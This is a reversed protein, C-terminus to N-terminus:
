QKQCLKQGKFYHNRLTGFAFKDPYNLLYLAHRFEFCRPKDKDDEIVSVEEYKQWRRVADKFLLDPVDKLAPHSKIWRLTDSDFEAEILEEVAFKWVSKNKIKPLTNVAKYFQISKEDSWQFKKSERKGGRRIGLRSSRIQGETKLIGDLLDRMEDIPDGEFDAYKKVVDLSKLSSEVALRYFSLSFLGPLSSRIYKDIENEYKDLISQFINGKEDDALLRDIEQLAANTADYQAIIDKNATLNKVVLNPNYNLKWDLEKTIFEVALNYRNLIFVNDFLLYIIKLALEDFYEFNALIELRIATLRLRVIPECEVFVERLANIQPIRKTLEDIIYDTTNEPNAYELLEKEYEEPRYSTLCELARYIIEKLEQESVFFHNFAEKYM